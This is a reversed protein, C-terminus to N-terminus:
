RETVTTPDTFLLRGGIKLLPGMRLSKHGIPSITIADICTIADFQM